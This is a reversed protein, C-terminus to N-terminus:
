RRVRRSLLQGIDAQFAKLYQETQRVPSRDTREPSILRRLQEPDAERLAMQDLVEAQRRALTLEHEASELRQRSDEAIDSPSRISSSACASIGELESIYEALQQQDNLTKRLEAHAKLLAESGEHEAALSSTLQSALEMRSAESDQLERRLVANEQRIRHQDEIEQRLSTNERELRSITDRLEPEVEDLQHQLSEARDEAATLAQQLRSLESDRQGTERQLHRLKREIERLQQSGQHALAHQLAAM